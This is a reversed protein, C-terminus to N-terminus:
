IRRSHPPMLMSKISQLKTEHDNSVMVEFTLTGSEDRLCRAKHNLLLPLLRERQGPTAEITGIVALKSM